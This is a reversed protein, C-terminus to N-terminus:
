VAVTVALSPESDFECFMVTLIFLRLSLAGANVDDEVKLTSSFSDSTPVAVTESASPLSIVKETLLSLIEILEDVPAM